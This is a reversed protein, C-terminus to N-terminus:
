SLNSNKLAQDLNRKFQEPKVRSLASGKVRAAYAELSENMLDEWRDQVVAGQAAAEGSAAKVARLNFPCVEQCVDCGAVWPGMQDLVEAPAEFEGRKELTLYSICKRSDLDHAAVFAKTPCSDLCRTCSGCYDAIPRPGLGLEQDLLVEGIFVYSGLRPHILLTNKGIWGLGSLAAWSRELVASTDVCVKYRLSFPMLDARVQDAWRACVDKMMAELKESLVDHYDPGDLYRAYRPGERSDARGLPGKRYPMLVSFVSRAGPLVMAPDRRRDRGRQLYSMAGEMGRSIWADYRDAHKLFDAQARAIDVGGFAPFGADAAASELIANLSLPEPM